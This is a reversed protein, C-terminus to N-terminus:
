NPQEQQASSFSLSLSLYHTAQPIMQLTTTGLSWYVLVGSAVVQTISVEDTKMLSALYSLKYLSVGLFFPM